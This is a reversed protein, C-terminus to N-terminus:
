SLLVLVKFFPDFLKYSFLEGIICNNILDVFDYCHHDQRNNPSGIESSSILFVGGFVLRKVTNIQEISLSDLEFEGVNSSAVLFKIFVNVFINILFERFFIRFRDRLLFYVLCPNSWHQFQIGTQAM